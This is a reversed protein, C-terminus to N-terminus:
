EKPKVYTKTYPFIYRVKKPKGADTAPIFAPLKNIGALVIEECIKCNSKLMKPESIEGKEDVSFTYYVRILKGSDSPIAEKPLVINKEIFKQLAGAGGPFEVNRYGKGAKDYATLISDSKRFFDKKFASDLKPQFAQNYCRKFEVSTDLTQSTETKTQSLSEMLKQINKVSDKPNTIMKVAIKKYSDKNIKVYYSISTNNKSPIYFGLEHRGYQVKMSDKAAKCMAANDAKMFQNILLVFSFILVVKKHM